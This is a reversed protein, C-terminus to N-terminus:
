YQGPQKTVVQFVDKTLRGLKHVEFYLASNAYVFTMYRNNHLHVTCTDLEKYTWFFRMNRRISLLPVEIPKSM